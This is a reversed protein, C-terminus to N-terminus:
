KRLKLEWIATKSDIKVTSKVITIKSKKLIIKIEDIFYEYDFINDVYKSLDIKYSAEDSFILDYILSDKLNM